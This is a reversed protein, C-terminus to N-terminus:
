AHHLHCILNEGVHNLSFNYRVMTKFFALSTGPRFRDHFEILITDTHPIWSETNQEMVEKESGEIDIKVLDLRHLQFQDRLDGLSVAEVTDPGVKNTERVTFGWAGLGVDVIELRCSKNWLGKQLCTVGEFAQTNQLLLKFNEPEPELCIIKVNPFKIKFFVAALGINAGADIIVEPNKEHKFHYEHKLFIDEFVSFDSLGRRLFIPAKLQKFQVSIRPSKGYELKLFFRIAELFGLLKILSRLKKFRKGM